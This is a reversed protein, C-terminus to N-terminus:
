VERCEEVTVLILVTTPSAKTNWGKATLIFPPELVPIADVVDIIEADGIIYGDSNVPVIRHGHYELHVFAINDASSDFHFVIRRIIGKSIHLDKSESTAETTSKSLPFVLAYNVM